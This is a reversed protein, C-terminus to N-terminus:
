ELKDLDEQIKISDELINIKLWIEKDVAFKIFM